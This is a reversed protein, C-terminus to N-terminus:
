RMMPGHQRRPRPQLVLTTVRAMMHTKVNRYVINFALVSIWAQLNVVFRRVNKKGTAMSIGADTIEERVIMMESVVRFATAGAIETDTISVATSVM